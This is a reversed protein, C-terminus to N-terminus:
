RRLVRCPRMATSFLIEEKPMTGLRKLTGVCQQRQLCESNRLHVNRGGDGDMVRIM